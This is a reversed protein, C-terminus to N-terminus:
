HVTKTIPPSKQRNQLTCILKILSVYTKNIFRAKNKFSVMTVSIRKKYICHFEVFIIQYPFDEILIYSELINPMTYEYSQLPYIFSNNM